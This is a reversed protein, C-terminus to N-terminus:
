KKFYAKGRLSLQYEDATPAKTLTITDISFLRDFNTLTHFFTSLSSYSGSADLSVNFSAYKQPNELIPVLDVQFAQLRKVSVDSQLGIAQIQGILTPANPSNPLVQMILPIDNQIQAYQEQLSRINVIKEQLKKYVERSDELKKQLKAITSLSPNIVFIAFFSLACLTLVLTSFAQTRENKFAIPITFRTTKSILKAM